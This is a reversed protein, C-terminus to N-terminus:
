VRRSSKLVIGADFGGRKLKKLYAAEEAQRMSIGSALILAKCAEYLDGAEEAAGEPPSEVLELAEEGVKEVLLSILEEKSNTYRWECSGGTEEIIIPILDRVLKMDKKQKGIVKMLSEAIDYIQGVKPYYVSICPHVPNMGGMQKSLVIGHGLRTHQQRASKWQISNFDRMVLDGVEIKKIM